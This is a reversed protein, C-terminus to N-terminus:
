LTVYTGSLQKRRHRDAAIHTNLLAEKAKINARLTNADNREKYSEIRIQGDTYHKGRDRIVGELHDETRM